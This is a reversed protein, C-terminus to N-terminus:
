TTTEYREVFLSCRRDRHSGNFVGFRRGGAILVEDVFQQAELCYGFQAARCKILRVAALQPSQKAFWADVAGVRHRRAKRVEQADHHPVDLAARVEVGDAVDQVVVRDDAMGVQHQQILKVFAHHTRAIAVDRQLQAPPKLRMGNIADFVEFQRLARAVFRAQRAGVRRRQVAVGDQRAVRKGLRLDHRQRTTFVVKLAGFPPEAPADADDRIEFNAADAEGGRRRVQIDDVRRATACALHAGHEFGHVCM